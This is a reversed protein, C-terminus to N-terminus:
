ILLVKNGGAEFCDAIGWAAQSVQGRLRWVRKLLRLAEKAAGFAQLPGLASLYDRFMQEQEATALFGSVCLPWILSRLCLEPSLQGLFRLASEVNSRILQNNPDWGEKVTSLYIKAANIWARTVSVQKKADAANCNPQSSEQLAEEGQQLKLELQRSRQRLEEAASDGHEHSTSRKWAELASIEGVLLLVWGQCGIYGEMQLLQASGDSSKPEEYIDEVLSKYCYRLRPAKGLSVSSVIDSYILITTDFRLAAQNANLIPVNLHVTDLISPKHLALDISPLHYVGDQMGHERFIETFVVIAASLHANWDADSAMATELILLQVIGQLASALQFIDSKPRMTKLHDMNHRIVQMSMDIHKALSDWVFQECPTRITHSAEKAILLTFYYMSLSMATHFVAKNAKVVGLIWSRGGSLTPPRYWPFLLPFVTDLYLTLFFDDSKEVTPYGELISDSVATKAGPSAETASSSTESASIHRIQQNPDTAFVKIAFNSEKRSSASQKVQAKIARAMEAQREGGDM